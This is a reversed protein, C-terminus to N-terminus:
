KADLPTLVDARDVPKTQLGEKIAAVLGADELAEDVIDRILDRHEEIAEVIAAKLIGKLIQEDMTALDM